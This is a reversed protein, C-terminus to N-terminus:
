RPVQAPNVGPPNTADGPGKDSPQPTRSATAPGAVKPAHNGAAATHKQEGIARRQTWKDLRARVEEVEQESSPDPKRGFPAFRKPRQPATPKRTVTAEETLGSASEKSAPKPTVPKVPEPASGARDNSAREAAAERRFRKQETADSPAENKQHDGAAKVAKSDLRETEAAKAKAEQKLREKQAADAEAERKVREGEAMKAEAERKVREREIAKAGAERKLREAEAAKADAAKKLREREAAKQAEEQSRKQEALERKVRAEEAARAAAEQKLRQKEAAKTKAERKLREEEAAKSAQKELKAQRVREAEKAASERDIRRREDAIARGSTRALRRSELGAGALAAKRKPAAAAFQAASSIRNGLQAIGLPLGIRSRSDGLPVMQIGSVAPIEPSPQGRLRFAGARSRLRRALVSWARVDHPEGRIGEAVDRFRKLLRPRTWMDETGLFVVALPRLLALWAVSAACGAIAQSPLDITLTSAFTVAALLIGFGMAIRRWVRSFARGVLYGIALYVTVGLTSYLSPFAHGNLWALTVNDRPPTVLINLSTQLAYAGGVALVLLGASRTRNRVLFYACTALTAVVVLAGYQASSSRASASVTVLEATHRASAGLLALLRWHARLDLRDFYPLRVTFALLVYATVGAIFVRLDRDFQEHWDSWESWRDRVEAISALSLTGGTSARWGQVTVAGHNV